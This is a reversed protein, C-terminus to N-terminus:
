RASHPLWGRRQQVAWSPWGGRARAEGALEGLLRSKGVGAEGALVVVSGRGAGADALATRLSEMEADRGVLVPCRVSEM